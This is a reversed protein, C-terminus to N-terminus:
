GVDPVTDPSQAGEQFTLPYLDDTVKHAEKLSGDTKRAWYVSAADRFILFADCDYPYTGPPFARRRTEREGSPMVGLDVIEPEGYPKGRRRWILQADYIPQQGKSANTVTVEMEPGGESTEAIKKLTISVWSAQARTREAEMRKREDLSERLESAQLELVETQKQGLKQQEALQASQVKLMEAQDRVEQSQKRVALVAFVATVIAFVALAATAIATIEGSLDVSM